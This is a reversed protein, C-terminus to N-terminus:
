HAQNELSSAIWIPGPARHATAMCYSISLSLKLRFCKVRRGVGKPFFAHTQTHIYFKTAIRMNLGVPRPFSALTQLASTRGVGSNNNCTWIHNKGLTKTHNFSLLFYRNFVSSIGRGLYVNARKSQPYFHGLAGLPVTSFSM